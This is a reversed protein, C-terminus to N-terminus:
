KYTNTKILVTHNSVLIVTHCTTSGVNKCSVEHTRSLIGIRDLQHYNHVSITIYSLFTLVLPDKENNIGLM